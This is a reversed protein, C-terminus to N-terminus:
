ERWFHFECGLSTHVAKWRYGMVRVRKQIVRHLKMMQEKKGLYYDREIYWRGGDETEEVMLNAYTEVTMKLTPFKSNAEMDMTLVMFGLDSVFGHTSDVSVDLAEWMQEMEMGCECMMPQDGSTVPVRVGCSCVLVYM